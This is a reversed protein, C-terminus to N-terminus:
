ETFILISLTEYIAIARSPTATAEIKNDSQAHAAGQGPKSHPM